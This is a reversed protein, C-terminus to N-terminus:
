RTAAADRAQIVATDPGRNMASKLVVLGRERGLRMSASM